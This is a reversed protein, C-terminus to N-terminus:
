FIPDKHFWYSFIDLYGSSWGLWVMSFSEAPHMLPLQEACPCCFSIAAVGWGKCFLVVRFGHDKVHTEAKEQWVMNALKAQAGSNSHEGNTYKNRMRSALCQRWAAMIGTSRVNIIEHRVEMVLTVMIAQRTTPVVRVM